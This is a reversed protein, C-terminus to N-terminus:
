SLTTFPAAAIIWNSFECALHWEHQTILRGPVTGPFQVTLKAGLVGDRDRFQHRVGGIALGDDLLAVGAIQVPYEPDVPITLSDTRHYDVVFRSAAPSGGTTEVVEQNGNDLRRLLYHDPHADVMATEANDAVLNDFWTAFRTASLGPVELRVVSHKTRGRSAAVGVRAMRESLALEHRVMAYVGAHGLRTKMTTLAARRADLPSALVEDLTQEPLVEAFGYRGLRAAFKKLVADARRSEWARVQDRSVQQKGLIAHIQLPDAM